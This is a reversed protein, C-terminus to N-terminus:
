SKRTLTSTRDRLVVIDLSLLTNADLKNVIYIERRFHTVLYSATLLYFNLTAFQNTNHQKESIGRVTMLTPMTSISATPTFEKIFKCDILSIGCGADVCVTKAKNQPSGLKLLM